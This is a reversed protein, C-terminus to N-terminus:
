ATQLHGKGPCAVPGVKRPMIPHSFRYERPHLRLQLWGHDTNWSVLHRQRRLNGALRRRAFASLRRGRARPPAPAIALTALGAPAAVLMLCIAVRLRREMRNFATQNLEVGNQYGVALASPRRTQSALRLEGHRVAERARRLLLDGGAAGVETTAAPDEGSGIVAV